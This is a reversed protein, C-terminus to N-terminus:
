YPPNATPAQPTRHAAYEFSLLSPPFISMEIRFSHLLLTRSAHAAIAATDSSASAKYPQWGAVDLSEDSLDSSEFAFSLMVNVSQDGAVSQVVHWAFSADESDSADHVADFCVDSDHLSQWVSVSFSAVTYTVVIALRSAKLMGLYRALHAEAAVVLALQCLLGYRHGRKSIRVALRHVRVIQRRGFRMLCNRARVTVGHMGLLGVEVSICLRVACAAVM